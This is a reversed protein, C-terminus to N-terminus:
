GGALPKQRYRSQIRRLREKNKKKKELRQNIHAQREREFMGHWFVEGTQPWLRGKSSGIQGDDFEEALDEDMAKLTSYMFFKIWIQGQRGDLAHQEHMVGTKPDVYIMVRASHYAWVNVLLELLRCYCHKAEPESVGLCCNGNDHHEAYLQSDLADVFIRSFMVFELFSSTPMAWCHLTSWKGGDVPMPPLSSWSSPLGYMQKFAKTFVSRCSNNNILDCFSWFDGHITQVSEEEATHGWFYFANGHETNKISDRLNREAEVSLSVKRASARWSQFGIWSNKHIRDIRNAIAFLAGFECLVEQYYTNNLLPLRSAADIDDHGSRRQRPILSVGRYTPDDEHVFVSAGLGYYPEYICLPQGTRELEGDDREHLETKQLREMKKVVKYVDEWTGHLLERREDIQEEERREMEDLFVLAKQENWDDDTLIDYDNVEEVLDETTNSALNSQKEINLVLNSTTKSGEILVDGIKFDDILDLLKWEWDDPLLRSMEAMPKPLMTGSSFPLVSELLDAYDGFVGHILSAMVHGLNTERAAQEEIDYNSIAASIKESLTFLDGAPYFLSRSGDMIYDQIITLNPVLLFRELAVAQLLICPFEQEERLASYIVIDAAWLLGIVDTTGDNFYHVMGDEFGLHKAMVQVVEAYKTATNSGIFNVKVTLGDKVHLHNNKDLISLVAQMIMAHERWIGKYTFPSGVITLVIDTSSCGLAKRVDERIHLKTYAKVDWIDKPSGPVVFYNGTDLLTHMMASSYHPFIVVNARAFVQKWESVLQNQGERQYFNLRKGLTDELIIWIVIAGKFPEQLFSTFVHKADLSGIIVGEFKSWDTYLGKPSSHLQEVPVGQEQWLKQMPGREFTFLQIEYGLAQLGKAITILYLSDPTVYLNSCVLALKPSRLFIQEIVWLNPTSPRRQLVSNKLRWPDFRLKYELSYREPGEVVHGFITSRSSRLNKSFDTQKWLMVVSGQLIVEALFCCLVVSILISFICSRGKQNGSEGDSKVTRGMSGRSSRASLQGSGKSADFGIEEKDAASTSDGATFVPRGATPNRKVPYGSGRSPGNDIRKSSGRSSYGAELLGDPNDRSDVIDM